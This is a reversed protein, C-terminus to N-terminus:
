SRSMSTITDRLGYEPKFDLIERAKRGDVNCLYKIYDVEAVSIKIHRGKMLFIYRRLMRLFPAAFWPPIKTVRAGLERAIVSIPVAGPGEINFIGVTDVEMARLIAEVVDDEQIVQIMPDFGMLLPIPRLRLFNAFNNRVTNGIIFVPRLIITKVERHQWLFNSAMMDIEILDRIGAFRWGAKLPADETLFNPNRPNPGYVTASSLVILKPVKYKACLSFLRDTVSINFDIRNGDSMGPMSSIPHHIVMSIKEKRFIDEVKRKRIDLNHLEVKRPKGPYPRLDIGIVRNELILRRALLRGISGAVGSIVIKGPAPAATAAKAPSTRKARAGAKKKAASKKPSKTATKRATAM